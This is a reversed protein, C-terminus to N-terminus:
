NVKPAFHSNKPVFHSNPPVFHSKSPVFHGHFLTVTIWGSVTTIENYIIVSLEAKNQRSNFKEVKTIAQLLHNWSKKGALKKQFIPM